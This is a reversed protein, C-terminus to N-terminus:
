DVQVEIVKWCYVQGDARTETLLEEPVMRKLTTHISSLPNSTYNSFDFGAALLAERVEVPSMWDQKQRLIDRCCETLTKKVDPGGIQHDMVVEYVTKMKKMAEAM